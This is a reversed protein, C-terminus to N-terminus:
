CGEVPLSEDIRRVADSIERAEEITLSTREEDAAVAYMTELESWEERLATVWAGSDLDEASRLISKFGAVLEGLDHVSQVSQGITTRVLEILFMLRGSDVVDFGVETFRPSRLFGSDILSQVERRIPGAMGDLDIGRERVAMYEYGVPEGSEDVDMIRGGEDVDVSVPPRDSVRLYAADAEPDFSITIRMTKKDTAQVTLGAAPRDQPSASGPASAALVEHYREVLGATATPWDWGVAVERALRGLEDRPASALLENAAAVAAAPRDAPFLRAAAKRDLLEHSAPSEAAVVPLGSALAELLVLGLTETTSSFVFLDAESYAEALADGTLSGVFCTSTGEFVTKLRASDPGEGVVVLEFEGSRAFEELRHLGKEWALRGVYLARPRVRSARSAGSAGSAGSRPAADGLEPRPRFREVDVGRRWLVIREFGHGGLLSRSYSSTVLTLATANHIRRLWWWVFPSLFGLHYFAAYSAIDTHFSSVVPLRLRKAAILGGLGLMAPTVLHVIDPEFESLFRRVRPLPFGWPEGGYIFSFSFSPVRRVMLGPSEERVPAARDVVPSVILVEHGEAILSEVTMAIRTVVGNITPRWTETVFAIRM